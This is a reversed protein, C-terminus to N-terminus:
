RKIYDSNDNITFTLFPNNEYDNVYLINRFQIAIKLINKAIRIIM